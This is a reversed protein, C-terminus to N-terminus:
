RATRMVTLARLIGAAFTEASGPGFSSNMAEYTIRRYADADPMYKAAGNVMTVVMTHAFPSHGRIYAGTVASLEAQVGVIATDGIRVLVFPAEVKGGPAFRYSHTPKIQRLDKPREQADLTMAGHVIGLRDDGGSITTPAAQLASDALREGQLEALLHGRDGIDITRYAGSQDYVNRRATYSPMQDGAAGTLFLAVTGPRRAEIDAVAGGALDATVSKSGDAGLSHDMVSSQVAYNLLTAVPRGDNAEFVLVGVSKDSYGADDGGLWWGQASLRNRNVNVNSTGVLFLRRVPAPDRAAQEAAATAAALIAAQYEAGRRQEAPSLSVGPPLHDPAFAHPASFSHSAIVVVDGPETATAKGIAAQLDAVLSDFISTQDIVAIAVRKGGTTLFLVRAQLPDHVSGFGDLPLIGPPMAITARGAGGSLAAKTPSAALAFAALAISASTFSRRKM